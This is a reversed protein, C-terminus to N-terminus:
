SAEVAGARWDFRQGILDGRTKNQKWSVRNYLACGPENHTVGYLTLVAPKDECLNRMHLDSAVRKTNNNLETFRAKEWARSTGFHM